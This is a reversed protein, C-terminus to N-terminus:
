TGSRFGDFAHALFIGVSILGLIATIAENMAPTWYAGARVFRGGDQVTLLFEEWSRFESDSQHNPAVTKAVVMSEGDRPEGWKRRTRFAIDENRSASTPQM